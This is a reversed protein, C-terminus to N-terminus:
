SMGSDPQYTAPDFDEAPHHQPATLYWNVGFRDTVVAACPSWPLVGLPTEVSGGRSLLAFARKVDDECDFIASIQVRYGLKNKDDSEVVSFIEQGDCYLESHFYSGDPNCVHYGLELGFAEKYLEVAEASNKVYIGMGFRM